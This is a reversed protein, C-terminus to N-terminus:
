KVKVTVGGMVALGKIRVVPADRDASRRSLSQFGGLFGIGHVDVGLDPPVVIDVGGMLTLVIVETVGELLDAERFDLKVGGMVSGVYLRAPPDWQGTRQSGGMLAFVFGQEDAPHLDTTELGPRPRPAPVASRDAEGLLSELEATSTARHALDIRREYEPGELRQRSHRMELLAITDERARKLAGNAGRRDGNKAM